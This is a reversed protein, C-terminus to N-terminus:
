KPNEGVKKKEGFAYAFAQAASAMAAESRVGKESGSIVGFWVVNGDLPNIVATAINVTASDQTKGLYEAAIPIVAVAADFVGALRRLDGFLPDGIRKVQAHQFSGVALENPKIELGPNRALSRAITAPLVWKKASKSQQIWYAIEGNLAARDVPWHRMTTDATPVAGDQVPLLLVGTTGLTPATLANAVPPAHHAGCGGILAAACLAFVTKLPQAM